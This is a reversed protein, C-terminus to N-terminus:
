EDTNEEAALAACRPCIFPESGYLGEVHDRTPQCWCEEAELADRLRDREAQAEVAIRDKDLMETELQRM